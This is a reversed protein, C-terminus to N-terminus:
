FFWKDNISWLNGPPAILNWSIELIEWIELLQLCGTLSSATLTPESTRVV